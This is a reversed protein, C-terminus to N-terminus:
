PKSRDILKIGESLVQPSGLLQPTQENNFERRATREVQPKVYDFLETLGVVGNQDGDAEGRLGRLLYYTLLGHKYQDYTSSVQDGSSAALVATKGSALVPNEISLVMPRM